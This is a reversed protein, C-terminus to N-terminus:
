IGRLRRVQRRGPRHQVDALLESARGAAIGRRLDRETRRRGVGGLAPAVAHRPPRHHHRGLPLALTLRDVTRRDVLEVSLLVRGDGAGREVDGTLIGRATLRRYGGEGPGQPDPGSWKQPRNPGVM